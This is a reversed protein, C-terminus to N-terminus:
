PARLYIFHIQHVIHIKPANRTIPMSSATGSGGATFGLVAKLPANCRSLQAQSVTAGRQSERSVDYGTATLKSAASAHSGGQGPSRSTRVLCAASEEGGCGM